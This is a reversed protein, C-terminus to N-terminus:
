TTQSSKFVKQPTTDFAQPACDAKTKPRRVIFEAFPIHHIKSFEIISSRFRTTSKSSSRMMSLRFKDMQSLSNTVSNPGEPQPLVVVSLTIPPNTCGVEPSTKKSPLSM